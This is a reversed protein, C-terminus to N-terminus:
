FQAGPASCNGLNWMWPQSLHFLMVVPPNRRGRELGRLCQQSIGTREEIAEQALGRERRMREFNRGVLLRVDM